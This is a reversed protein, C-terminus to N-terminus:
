KNMFLNTDIDIKSIQCTSYLTIERINPTIDLLFRYETLIYIVERWIQIYVM